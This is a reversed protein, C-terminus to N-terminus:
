QKAIQEAIAYQLQMLDEKTMYGAIYRHCSIAILNMYDKDSYCKSVLSQVMTM